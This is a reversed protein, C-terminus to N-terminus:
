LNLGCQTVLYRRIDNPANGGWVKRKAATPFNIGNLVNSGRIGLMVRTLILGDVTATTQGDGDVDLSCLRFAFPGSEFRAACFRDYTEGLVTAPCRGAAVIKGDAQILVANFADRTSVGLVPVANGEFTADVGGDPEYRTICAESTAISSNCAGVVVIKGDPQIAMSRAYSDPANVSTSTFGNFSFTTDLSGGRNLRAVCFNNGSATDCTGAVVIKDDPQIAVARASDVGTGIAYIRKGDSGFQIGPANSDDLAGTDTYRALCFDINTAGTCEGAVLIKGGPQIAMAHLRANGAGMRTTVRGLSGFSNDNSGDANLRVLCFEDRSSPIAVFECSGALVIKGDQQIGVASVASFGASSITRTGGSSFSTDLSGNLNYRAVCFANDCTGAVVIKHDPQIAVASAENDAATVATIAVFGFGPAFSNDRDGNAGMRITCFQDKTGIRCTGTLIIKGDSQQAMAAVSHNAGGIVPHVAYGLNGNNGFEFIDLDGPAALSVSATAFAAFLLSARRIARPVANLLRPIPHRM